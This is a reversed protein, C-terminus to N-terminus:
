LTVADFVSKIFAQHKEVRLGVYIQPITGSYDQLNKLLLKKPNNGSFTFLMHTVQEPRIQNKLFLDDLVTAAASEGIEHLRDAVFLASHASPLGDNASLAKRAENIVVAGLNARSKVEGKLILVQKTRPDIHFCLIDDGRMAMERHDAWQLKYVGVQYITEERVYSACLIEGLDGSRAKAGRPLKAALMKAASERGLRVLIKEIRSGDVYQEPVGKAVLKVAPITHLEHADLVSVKHKNLSEEEIQCWNRFHTM